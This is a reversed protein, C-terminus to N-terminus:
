EGHALLTRVEKASGHEKLLTAFDALTSALAEESIAGRDAYLVAVVARTHPTIKGKMSDKIANGLPVGDKASYVTILGKLDIEQGASNFIYKEGEAGYRIQISDGLAARDLLSIPIGTRLSFLNNIDVLNNIFPFRGEKAAQALYESAPKNRGSPKFGGRRLLDRISDKVSQPLDQQVRRAVQEELLVRLEPPTETVSVESAAVVGAMFAPDRFSIQIQM